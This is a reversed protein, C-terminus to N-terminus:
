SAETNCEVAGSAQQASRLAVRKTTGDQGTVESYPPVEESRGDVSAVMGAMLAPKNNDGVAVEWDGIQGTLEGGPAILAGAGAAAVADAWGSRVAQARQRARPPDTAGPGGICGALAITAFLAFAFGLPNSSSRQAAWRAVLRISRM